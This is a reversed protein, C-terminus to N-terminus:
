DEDQGLEPKRRKGPQEAKRPMVLEVTETGARARARVSEDRRGAKWNM